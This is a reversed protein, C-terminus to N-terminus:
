LDQSGPEYGREVMCKQKWVIFPFDVGVEMEGMAIATSETDGFEGGDWAVLCLKDRAMPAMQLQKDDDLLSPFYGGSRNASFSRSAM